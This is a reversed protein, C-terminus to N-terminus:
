NTVDFLGFAVGAAAGGVEACSECFEPVVDEFGKEAGAIGYKMQPEAARIMPTPARKLGLWGFGVLRASKKKRGQTFSFLRWASRSVSGSPTVGLTEFSM